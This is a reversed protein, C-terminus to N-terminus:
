VLRNIKRLVHLFLALICYYNVMNDLTYKKIVNLLKMRDCETACERKFICAAKTEVSKSFIKTGYYDFLDTMRYNFSCWFAGLVNEMKLMTIEMKFVFLRVFRHLSFLFIGQEVELLHKTQFIFMFTTHTLQLWSNSSLKDCSIHQFPWVEKEWLWHM